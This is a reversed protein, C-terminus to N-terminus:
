FIVILGVIVAAVIVIISLTKLSENKEEADRYNYLLAQVITFAICADLFLKLITILTDTDVISRAANLAVKTSLYQPIFSIIFSLIEKTENAEKKAWCALYVMVFVMIIATILGMTSSACSLGAAFASVLTLVAIRVWDEARISGKVTPLKIGLFPVNVSSIGGNLNFCILMTTVLAAGGYILFLDMKMPDGGEKIQRLRRGRVLNSSSLM